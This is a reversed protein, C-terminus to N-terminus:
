ILDSLFSLILFDSVKKFFLAFVKSSINLLPWYIIFSSTLKLISSTLNISSLAFFTIESKLAWNLFISKGELSIKSGITFPSKFDWLVFKLPTPCGNLIARVPEFNPGPM